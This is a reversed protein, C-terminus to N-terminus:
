FYNRSHLFLELNSRRIYDCILDNYDRIIKGLEPKEGYDQIKLRLVTQLRNLNISRGHSHWINNDGLIRAIEEAREEKEEQTVPTGIKEPTTQHTDWNKFKYKVLWEKLLTVSLNLAQEFSRLMALDQKQLLIIDASTMKGKASKEIIENVKDLYGLAPVFRGEKQIQPDIPGLSSSYDMLINDGSMCFITGASMATDPVIFDVETYFHRTINVMKEVPEVYGGPTNLMITLKTHNTEDGKLQEIFNRFLRDVSHLIPGYFFVVDSNLSDELKSLLSGLESKVVTDLNPLNM